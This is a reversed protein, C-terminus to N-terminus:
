WALKLTNSLPDVKSIKVMVTDGATVKFAPNLPLDADLLLEELFIHVRKLGSDIILAPIREGTKPELYKLIWYRQRLYKVQNAKELTTLIISGFRKMDNKSFLIGKNNVLDSIQLQMILDLLRRIPSTVTTYQPAGVGSHIKPNTLLSMPSLRKRQQIIKLTDKEFGDIIRQRPEMQCRFLGPAEREAAFQAGLTNALIMFEAVLVRSPTDVPSKSIKITDNPEICIHLEPLPLLLAGNNVRRQRLLKSLTAMASLTKDQKVLHDAETYTLQQKVSVISQVVSFRLIEAGPSLLVLFSLAPREQDKLLSLKEEALSQPLMPISEEPFYISTGRKLAEDFLATGPKVYYGVDSIHIGVLYNEGQKELHLADDFDRTAAGDITIIQLNRFDQRGGELLEAAPSFAIKETEALAKESFSLPIGYRHLPINENKDWVGARVLLHFIDHPGTLEANKILKSALIVETAEKGFLYYDRLIQLTMERDEWEAPIEGKLRICELIKSNVALFHEQQKEKDLKLKTQAVTEPSQVHIKGSKYKFYLRNAIVARLFAASQNDSPDNGYFLSALFTVAFLEEPKESVLTWVEDLNIGVALKERQQATKQLIPLIDERSLNSSLIEQSYHIIRNLPLSLEERNENLIDLRIGNDEHVYGCIFKGNDLYEVIRGKLTM